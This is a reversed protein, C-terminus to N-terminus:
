MGSHRRGVTLRAVFTATLRPWGALRRRVRELFEARREPGLQAPGTQTGLNALYEDATYVRRFPYTRAAVEAFFAAADPPLHSPGIADLAPHPDGPFDVARYDEQVDSWFREADPAAAWQTSIVVMHGGDRILEAPRRYRLAPDVWHLSNCALVADFPGGDPEWAEFTSTVVRAGTGPGIELVRAGPALGALEVLDDFLQAPSVPRSRQYDEAAADFVAPLRARDEPGFDLIM